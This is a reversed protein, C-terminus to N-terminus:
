KKRRRIAALRRREKRNLKRPKKDQELREERLDLPKSFDPPWVIPEKKEQM